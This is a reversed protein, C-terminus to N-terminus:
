SGDHSLAIEITSHPSVVPIESAPVPSPPPQVEEFNLRKQGVNERRKNKIRVRKYYSVQELSDM